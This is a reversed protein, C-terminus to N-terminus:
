STKGSEYSQTLRWGEKLERMFETPSIGLEIAKEALDLASPPSLKQRLELLKCLALATAEASRVRAEPLAESLISIADDLIEETREFYSGPTIVRLKPKIRPRLVEVDDSDDTDDTKNNESETVGAKKLTTWKETSARNMLTSKGVGYKLALEKLTAHGEIYSSRVQDWTQESIEKGKM